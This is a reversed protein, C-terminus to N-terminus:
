IITEEPISNKNKTTEIRLNVNFSSIILAKISFIMM